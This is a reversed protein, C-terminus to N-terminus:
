SHLSNRLDACFLVTHAWGAYEGFVERFAEGIHLYLSKTITKASSGVMGYDRQAIQWVHTDVPIAGIKDLSMLCICDSVKPGVGPLSLLETHAAQYSIDRLSHLWKSGGRELILKASGVIFKARYGFGLQRLRQEVDDGALAKIEPFTYFVIHEGKDNRLSDIRTGYEACLSRIMSSIRPINNNSSCIFSFVNESPDQRLVRLGILNQATVKKAFNSDLLWTKYLLELSSGLQFYDYLILKAETLSITDSYFHFLVDTDTQLLSVLNQLIVGAWINDSLKVWRFAQGCLLSRTIRLESPPVGLSHWMSM